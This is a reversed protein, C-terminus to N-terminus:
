DAKEQLHQWSLLCFPFSAPLCSVSFEQESHLWLPFLKMICLEEFKNNKLKNKYLAVKSINCNSSVKIEIRRDSLTGVAWNLLLKERNDEYLQILRIHRTM